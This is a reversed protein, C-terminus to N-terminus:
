SRMRHIADKIRSINGFGRTALVKMLGPGGLALVGFYGKWMLDLIGTHSRTRIHEETKDSAMLQIVLIGMQGIDETQLALLKELAGQPTWFSVDPNDPSAREAMLKSGSKRITIAPAEGPYVAISAGESLPKGARHCIERLFFEEALATVDKQPNSSM